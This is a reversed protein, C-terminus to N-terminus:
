EFLFPMSGLGSLWFLGEYESLGLCTKDLRRAADLHVRLATALPLNTNTARFHDDLRELAFLAELLVIAKRGEYNLGDLSGGSTLDAHVDQWEGWLSNDSLLRPAAGLPTGAVLSQTASRKAIIWDMPELATGTLSYGLVGPGQWPTTSLGQSAREKGLVRVLEGYIFVWVDERSSFPKLEGADFRSLVAEAIRGAEEEIKALSAFTSLFSGFWYDVEQLTLHFQHKHDQISAIWEYSRHPLTANALIPTAWWEANLWTETRHRDYFAEFSAVDELSALLNAAITLHGRQEARLAIDLKVEDPVGVLAGSLGSYFTRIAAGHLLHAQSAIEDAIELLTKGDDYLFLARLGFDELYSFAKARDSLGDPLRSPRSSSTVLIDFAREINGTSILFAGLLDAIHRPPPESMALTLLLTEKDSIGLDSYMIKLYAAQAGFHSKRLMPLGDRNSLIHEARMEIQSRNQCADLNAQNDFFATQLYPQLSNIWEEPDSWDNQFREDNQLEGRGYINKWDENYLSRVGEFHRVEFHLHCGRAFGTAGTEGIKRGRRIPGRTVLPTDALHLYLTYVPKAGQDAHRIVVANGVGNVGSVGFDPDGSSVTKVVEGDEAAYVALGCGGGIDVGPHTLTSGSSSKAVEGHSYGYGIAGKPVLRQYWEANPNSKLFVPEQARVPNPHTSFVLAAVLMAFAVELLRKRDSM